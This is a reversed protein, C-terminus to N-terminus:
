SVDIDANAREAAGSIARLRNLKADVQFIRALEPL